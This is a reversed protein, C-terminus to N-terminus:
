TWLGYRLALRNPDLDALLFLRGDRPKRMM